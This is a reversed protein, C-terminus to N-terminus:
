PHSEGKGVRRKGFSYVCLMLTWLPAPSSDMFSQKRPAKTNEFPLVVFTHDTFLLAGSETFLFVGFIAVLICWFYDRLPM